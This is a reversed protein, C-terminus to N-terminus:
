GSSKGIPLIFDPDVSTLRVVWRIAPGDKFTSEVCPDAAPSTACYPVRNVVSNKRIFLADCDSDDGLGHCHTSDKPFRLTLGLSGQYYPDADFGVHLGSGCLVTGCMDGAPPAESLSAIVGNNSDRVTLDHNQFSLTEGDLLLASSVNPDSIVPTVTAATDNAQNDDLIGLATPPVSVTATNTVSGATFPTRIAVVVQRTSGPLMADFRCSVVPDASQDTPATCGSPIQSSSAVFTGGSTSDVVEVPAVAPGHNTVTVRYIAIGGPPSVTSPTSSNTVGADAIPAAVAPSSLLSVSAVTLALTSVLIKSRARM